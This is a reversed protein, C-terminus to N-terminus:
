KPEEFSYPLTQTSFKVEPSSKVIVDGQEDISKIQMVALAEIGGNPSLQCNVIKGKSQEDTANETTLDTGPVLIQNNGSKLLYMRKKLKGLYQTRAVIEQGPYCGKKFNVANILQLNLMQPVFADVTESEITPIGSQVDLLSWPDRGVAVLNDKNSAWYSALTDCNSFVLFRSNNNTTNPLKIVTINDQTESSCHESPITNFKNQIISEASSGSLGFCCLTDSVDTLEVDARMKFMTLRKLISDLLAKPLQLYYDNQIQFLSFFAIVRGKPSCYSNLQAQTETVLNVDNSFQSQLFSQTESGSIKIIGLHSLDAIITKDNNNVAALEQTANGYHSVGNEEIVAGQSELHSKWISDM